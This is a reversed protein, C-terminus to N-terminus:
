KTAKEEAIVDAKEMSANLQEASIPLGMSSSTVNADRTRLFGIGGLIIPVQMTVDAETLTGNKCGFALHVLVGLIMGIGISSTQWNKFM